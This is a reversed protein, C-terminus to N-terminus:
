KAMCKLLHERMQHQEYCLGSPDKGFCLATANAIAFLGCDVGGKQQQVNHVFCKVEKQSTMVLSALQLKTMSRLSPGRLSDYVDVENPMNCFLNSSVIWHIGGTHLVQVFHQRPIDFQLKSGLMTEQLGDILPCQKKLVTMAATMHSDTLMGGKRVTDLDDESVNAATTQLSLPTRPKAQNARRERHRLMSQFLNEKTTQNTNAHKAKTVRPRGRIPPTTPLSFNSKFKEFDDMNHQHGELNMVGSTTAM